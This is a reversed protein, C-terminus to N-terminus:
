KLDIIGITKFYVHAFIWGQSSDIFSARLMRGELYSFIILRELEKKTQKEIEKYKRKNKVNMIRQIM